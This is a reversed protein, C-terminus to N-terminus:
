ATCVYEDVAELLFGFLEHLQDLEHVMKCMYSALEENRQGDLRLRNHHSHSHGEEMLRSDPTRLSTHAHLYWGNRLGMISSLSASINISAAAVPYHCEERPANREIM